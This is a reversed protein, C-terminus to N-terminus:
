RNQLGRITRHRETGVNSELVSTLWWGIGREEALQIIYSSRMLGGILSPKLIIFQPKITDMM